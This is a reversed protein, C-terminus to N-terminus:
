STIERSYICSLDMDLVIFFGSFIGSLDLFFLIDFEIVYYM